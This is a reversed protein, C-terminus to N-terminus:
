VEKKPISEHEKESGEANKKKSKDFHDISTLKLDAEYHRLQQHDREAVIKATSTNHMSSPWWSRRGAVRLQFV